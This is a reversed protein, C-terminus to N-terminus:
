WRDGIPTTYNTWNRGGLNYVNNNNDDYDVWQNVNDYDNDLGWDHNAANNAWKEM